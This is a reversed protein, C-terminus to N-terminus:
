KQPPEDLEDYDIEIKSINVGSNGQNQIQIGLSSVPITKPTFKIIDLAGQGKTTDTGSAYQYTFAGNTIVNGTQDILNLTFKTNSDTPNCYVRIKKLAIKKAFKQVQTSYYGQTLSDGYNQLHFYEVVTDITGGTTDVTGFSFYLKTRTTDTSGSIKQNHFSPVCIGGKIAEGSLGYRNLFYFSNDSKDYCVIYIFGGIQMQFFVKNGVAFSNGPLPPYLAYGIDFLTALKTGDLNYVCVGEDDKGFMISYTNTILLSSLNAGNMFQLSSYTKDVGNWYLIVSNMTGSIQQNGLTQDFIYGASFNQSAIIILYRGDQSVQMDRITYGNPLSPSLKTLTTFSTGNTTEAINNDNAVYINGLFQEIPRPVDTSMGTASVTSFTASTTLGSSKELGVSTGVYIKNVGDIQSILARGSRKMNGSLANSFTELYDYDPSTTNSVTIKYAKGDIGVGFVVPITSTGSGENSPIMNTITGNPYIDKLVYLKPIFTINTDYSDWFPDIGYTTLAFPSFGSDLTGILDKTMKGKFNSIELTRM